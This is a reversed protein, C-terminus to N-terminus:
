GYVGGSVRDVRPASGTAGGCRSTTGLTALVPQSFQLGVIV